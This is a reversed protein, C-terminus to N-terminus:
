CSGSEPLIETTYLISFLIRMNKRMMDFVTYMTM